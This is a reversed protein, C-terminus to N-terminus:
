PKKEKKKSQCVETAGKKTLILVGPAVTLELEDAETIGAQRVKTLALAVLYGNLFGPKSHKKILKM